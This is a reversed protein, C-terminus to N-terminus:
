PKDWLRKLFRMSRAADSRSTFVEFTITKEYGIGKLLKVVKKFDIKGDGLPLHEDQEGHNDHIHIHALRDAFADLYEKVGKM